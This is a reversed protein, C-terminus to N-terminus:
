ALLHVGLLACNEAGPFFWFNILDQVSNLVRKPFFTGNHHFVMYLAQVLRSLLTISIKIVFNVSYKQIIILKSDFDNWLIKRMRSIFRLSLSYIKYISIRTLWNYVRNTTSIMWGVWTKEYTQLKWICKFSISIPGFAQFNNSLTIGLRAYRVGVDRM